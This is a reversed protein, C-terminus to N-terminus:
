DKGEDPAVNVEDFKELLLPILKDDLTDLEDPTNFYRQTHDDVERIAYYLQRKRFEGYWVNDAESEILKDVVLDRLERETTRDEERRLRKRDRELLEEVKEVYRKLEDFVAKAEPDEPNLSYRKRMGGDEDEGNWAARLGELYDNKKWEEDDALQAEISMRAQTLEGDKIYDIMKNRDSFLGAMEAESFITLRVESEDRVFRAAMLKARIANAQDMAQKNELPSIKHMWIKVPDNDEDDNLEVEIGRVYLDSLRRRRPLDIQAPM